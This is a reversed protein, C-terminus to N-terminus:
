GEVARVIDDRLEPAFILRVRSLRQGRLRGLLYSVDGPPRPAGTPFIVSLSGDSDDFPLDAAFDLGVYVDQDLGAKKAVDQARELLAQRTEPLLQEDWLEYTKFLRRTVVRSCLDRLV